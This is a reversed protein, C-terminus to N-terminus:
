EEGKFWKFPNLLERKTVKPNIYLVGFIGAIMTNPLNFMDRFMSIFMIRRDGGGAAVYQHAGVDWAADVGSPRANGALDTSFLPDPTTFFSDPDYSLDTSLGDEPNKGMNGDGVGAADTSISETAFYDADLEATLDNSNDYYTAGAAGLDASTDQTGNWDGDTWLYQRIDWNGNEMGYNSFALAPDTGDVCEIGYGGNDASTCCVVAGNGGAIGRNTNNYSICGFVLGGDAVYIGNSSSAIRVGDYAVCHIVFATSTTEARVLSTCDTATISLQEIRGREERMRIGRVLDTGTMAFSGGGSGATGDFGTGSASRIVRYDSASIDSADIWDSLSDDHSGSSAYCELIVRGLGSLSGDTASEWTGLSTYDRAGDNSDYTAM